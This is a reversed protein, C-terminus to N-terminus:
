LVSNGCEVYKWALRMFKQRRTHVMSLVSSRRLVRDINITYIDRRIEGGRKKQRQLLNRVIMVNKRKVREVKFYARSIDATRGIEKV